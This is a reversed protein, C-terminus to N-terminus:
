RRPPAAPPTPDAPPATVPKRRNRKRRGGASGSTRTAACGARWSNRQLLFALRWNCHSSVSRNMSTALQTGDSWGRLVRNVLRLVQGLTLWTTKRRTLSKIKRQIAKLSKKSPFTWAVRHGRWPVRRIHHGLFDFGEDVHTVSTKEESLKMRLESRLLRAAENRVEATQRRTGRVLIVFDDAYRVLRYVPIGKKHLYSPRGHYRSQEKWVREFHRDLVSLYINALIPSLIGGQPTGTLTAEFRGNERVVGAGLFARILRLVRRDGIRQRVLRMLIGHHVNEFCGEIDGEVVYDYGGPPNIIGVIETIADQARRAPRYGYSTPCFDVEFIPELVLKLAM